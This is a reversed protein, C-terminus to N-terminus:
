IMSRLPELRIVFLGSYQTVYAVDSSFPDGWTYSLCNYDQNQLGKLDTLSCKVGRREGAYIVKLVRITSRQIVSQNSEDEGKIIHPVSCYNYRQIKALHAGIWESFINAGLILRTIRFMLNVFCSYVAM